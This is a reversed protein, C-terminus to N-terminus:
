DHVSAPHITNTIILVWIETLITRFVLCLMICHRVFNDCQNLLSLKDALKVLSYASWCWLLSSCPLLQILVGELFLPCCM